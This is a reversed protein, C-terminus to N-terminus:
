SLQMAVSAQFGIISAAVVSAPLDAQGIVRGIFPPAMRSTSNLVATAPYQVGHFTPVAAGTVVLLGTAYFAGLTLGYSASLAKPYATNIAAFLSTDNPTSAALAVDGNAAVTYIGMRCVTPTAGAATSGSFATLTSITETRDAYFYSLLLVGSSGGGAANTGWRDRAPVIQGVDVSNGASVHRFGGGSSGM